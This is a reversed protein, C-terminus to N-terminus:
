QMWECKVKLGGLPGLGAATVVDDAIGGHRWAEDDVGVVEAEGGADVAGDDLEMLGADEGGGGEHGGAGGEVVGDLEGARVGGEADAAMEDKEVAHGEGVGFGDGGEEACVAFGEAGGEGVEGLGGEAVGDTGVVEGAFGGRLDLAKLAGADVDGVDVGVFVGVDEWGDGARDQVDGLAASDIGEAVGELRLPGGVESVSGDSAADM